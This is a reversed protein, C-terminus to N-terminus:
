KLFTAHIIKHLIRALYNKAMIFTNRDIRRLCWIYDGRKLLDLFYLHCLIKPTFDKPIPEGLWSRRWFMKLDNVINPDVTSEVQDLYCILQKFFLEKKSATRQLPHLRYISVPFTYTKFLSVGSILRHWFVLDAIMDLEFTATGSYKKLVRSDFFTAHQPVSSALITSYNYFRSAFVWAQQLTLSKFPWKRLNYKRIDSDSGMFYSYVQMCGNGDIKWSNYFDAIVRKFSGALYLDDSSQITIIDGSVFRLGKHIADAVGRDPESILIIDNKYKNCVALTNDTSGGDIVICEVDIVESKQAIISCLTQEIYHGQNYSLVIVSIKIV